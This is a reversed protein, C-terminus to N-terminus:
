DQLQLQLNEIHKRACFQVTIPFAIISHSRISSKFCSKNLASYLLQICAGFNMHPRDEKYIISIHRSQSSSNSHISVGLSALMQRAIVIGFFVYNSLSVWISFGVVNVALSGYLHRQHIRVNYLTTNHFNILILNTPELM